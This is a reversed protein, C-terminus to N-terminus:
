VLPASPNAMMAYPPPRQHHDFIQTDANYAGGVDYIIKDAAPTVLIPDRSRILQANPFLHTLVASSLLEDAHFGGSHTILKNITM